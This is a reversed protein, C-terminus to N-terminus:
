EDWGADQEEKNASARTVTPRKKRASLASHRFQLGALHELTWQLAKRAKVKHSLFQSAGFLGRFSVLGVGRLCAAAWARM